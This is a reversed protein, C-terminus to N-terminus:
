GNFITNILNELNLSLLENVEQNSDELAEDLFPRPPTATKIGRIFISNQIAWAINNLNGSVGKKKLWKILVEIPLRVGVLSGSRRGSQIFKVYSPAEITIISGSVTVKINAVAKSNQLNYKVASATIFEKITEAIAQLIAQDNM